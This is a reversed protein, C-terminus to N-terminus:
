NQIKRYRYSAKPGSLGDTLCKKERSLKLGELKCSYSQLIKDKDDNGTDFITDGFWVCLYVSLKDLIAM